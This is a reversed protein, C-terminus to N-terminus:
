FLKPAKEAKWERKKEKAPFFLETLVKKPEGSGFCIFYILCTSARSGNQLNRLTIFGFEQDM